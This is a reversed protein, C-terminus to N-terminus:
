YQVDLGVLGHMATSLSIGVVRAKGLQTVCDAVASDIGSLVSPPDQVQWGPRPQEMRYEHLATALEGRTGGVGFAAVKVARTGVDLGIIVDASSDKVDRRRSPM